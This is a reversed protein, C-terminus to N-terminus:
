LSESVDNPIKRTGAVYADALKILFESDSTYEMQRAADKLVYAAIGATMEEISNGMSEMRSCTKTLTKSRAELARCLRIAQEFQSPVEFSTTGGLEKMLAELRDAAQATSFIGMWERIEKNPMIAGKTAVMFSFPQIPKHFNLITVVVDAGAAIADREEPTPEIRCTVRGLGVVVPLNDYEAQNIGLVVELETLDDFVPSVAKM